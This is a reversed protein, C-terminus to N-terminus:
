SLHSLWSPRPADGRGRGRGRCGRGRSERSSRVAESVIEPDHQFSCRAGNPCVEGLMM